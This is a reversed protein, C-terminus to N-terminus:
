PISLFSRLFVGPVGKSRKISTNMLTMPLVWSPGLFHVWRSFSVLGGFRVLFVRLPACGPLGQAVKQLPPLFFSPALCDLMKSCLRVFNNPGLVLQWEYAVDYPILAFAMGRM